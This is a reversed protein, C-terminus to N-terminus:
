TTIYMSARFPKSIFSHNPFRAAGPRCASAAQRTMRHSAHHYPFRPVLNSCPGPFIVPGLHLRGELFVTKYKDCFCENESWRTGAIQIKLVYGVYGFGHFLWIVFFSLLTRGSSTDVERMGWRVVSLGCELYRFICFPTRPM